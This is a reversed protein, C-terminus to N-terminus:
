KIKRLLLTLLEHYSEQAGLMRLDPKQINEDQEVCELERQLLFRLLAAEKDKLELKM